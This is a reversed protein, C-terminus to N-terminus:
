QAVLMDYSYKTDSYARISVIAEGDTFFKFHYRNDYTKGNKLSAVCAIEAAARDGDVVLDTLRFAMKGDIKSHVNDAIQRMRSSSVDGVGTSWWKVGGDVLDILRQYGGADVSEVFREIILRVDAM